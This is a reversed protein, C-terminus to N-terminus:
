FFYARAKAQSMRVLKATTWVDQGAGSESQSLGLGYGQSLGNSLDVLQKTTWSQSNSQNRKM